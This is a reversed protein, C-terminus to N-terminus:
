ACDCALQFSGVGKLYAATALAKENSYGYESTLASVISDFSHRKAQKKATTLNGNIFNEIMTNMANSPPSNHLSPFPKPPPKQALIDMAFDKGEERGYELNVSLEQMPNGPVLIFTLVGSDPIPPVTGTLGYADAFAKCEDFTHFAVYSTGDISGFYSYPMSHAHACYRAADDHSMVTIRLTKKHQAFDRVTCFDGVIQCQHPLAYRGRFVPGCYKRQYDITLFAARQKLFQETSM